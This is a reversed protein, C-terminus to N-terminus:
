LWSLNVVQLQGRFPNPTTSSGIASPETKSQINASEVLIKADLYNYDDVVLLNPRIGLKKRRGDEDMEDSTLAVMADWVTKVSNYSLVSESRFATQWLGYGTGYRCSAGYLFERHMFTHINSYDAMAQFTPKERNTFIIPKLARRSDILYFPHAAGSGGGDIYNSVSIDDGDKGVPHGTDFFNQGDYCLNQHGLRLAKCILKPKLLAMAEGGSVAQTSYIGIRDDMVDDRQVRCTVEYAKHFVEYKFSALQHLVRPGLWERADPMDGLWDFRESATTSKVELAIADASKDEGAITMAGRFDTRLGRFITDLNERNIDM